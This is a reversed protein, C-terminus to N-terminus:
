RLGWYRYLINMVSRHFINNDPMSGEVYAKQLHDLEVVPFEKHIQKQIEERM